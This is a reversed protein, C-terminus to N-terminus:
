LVLRLHKRQRAAYKHVVAQRVRQLHRTHAFRESALHQQEQALFIGGLRPHRTHIGNRLNHRSCAKGVVQSVRREPMRAFAGDACIEALPFPLLQLGVEVFPLPVVEHVELAVGITKAREHMLELSPTHTAEGHGVAGKGRYHFVGVCREVSALLALKAEKRRLLLMKLFYGGFKAQYLQAFTAIAAM